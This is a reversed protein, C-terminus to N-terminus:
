ECGPCGARQHPQHTNSQDASLVLDVRSSPSLQSELSCGSKISLHQILSAFPQMHVPASTLSFAELSAFWPSLTIAFKYKYGVEATSSPLHDSAWHSGAESPGVATECAPFWRTTFRLLSVCGHSCIHLILAFTDGLHSM